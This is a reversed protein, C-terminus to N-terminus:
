IKITINELINLTNITMQTITPTDTFMRMHILMFINMTMPLGLLTLWPINKILSPILGDMIPM